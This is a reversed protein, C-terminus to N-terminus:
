AGTGRAGDVIRLAAPEPGRTRHFYVTMSHWDGDETVETHLLLDQVDVEGLAEISDAVRRLLAPVNAQGQGAPNAQSFHEITWSTRKSV